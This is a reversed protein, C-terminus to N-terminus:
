MPLGICPLSYVTIFKLYSLALMVKCSLQLRHIYNHKLLLLLCKNSLKTCVISFQRANILCILLSLLYVFINILYAYTMGDCTLTAANSIVSVSEGSVTCAYSGANSNKVNTITLVSTDGTTSSRNITSGNHTWSFTLNSSISAVCRFKVVSNVAMLADQPNSKIEIKFVHLYSSVYLIM